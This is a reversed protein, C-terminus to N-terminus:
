PDEYSGSALRIAKRYRARRVDDRLIEYAEELVDVIRLVDEKLDLTRATLIKSPEFERRLALFSKRIEYGNADVPVGLLAFYDGEEVISARARIRQRRAEDDLVDDPPPVAPASRRSAHVLPAQVELAGLLWLAYLVVASDETAISRIAEELTRGQLTPIVQELGSELACERVVQANPGVGLTAGLGGMADEVDSSRLARRLAEVFVAAGTSAGFVSPVGRQGASPFQTVSARGLVTFKSLLWESHARLVDWLEENHLVGHAVLAAAAFRPEKPLRRLLTSSDGRLIDGREILFEALTDTESSSSVSVIDGQFFTVDFVRGGDHDHNAIALVCSAHDRIPEALVKLAEHRSTVLREINPARETGPPPQKSPREELEPINEFRAPPAPPSETHAALESGRAEPGTGTTHADFSGDTTKGGLPGHITEHAGEEDAEEDIPSELAMLVDPPLVANVEDEPSLVFGEEEESKVARAEADRLFGALEQSLSTIPAVPSVSDGRERLRAPPTSPPPPISSAMAPPPASERIGLPPLSRMSPPASPARPRDSPATHGLRSAIANLDCPRVFFGLVGRSAVSQVKSMMAAEASSVVVTREAVHAPAALFADLAAELDAELVVPHRSAGEAFAATAASPAVLQVDFGEGQLVSRLAERLPTDLAFVLVTTM